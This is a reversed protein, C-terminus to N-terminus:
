RPQYTSLKPTSDHGLTRATTDGDGYEQIQGLIAPDYPSLPPCGGPLPCNPFPTLIMSGTTTGLNEELFNADITDLQRETWCIYEVSTSYPVEAANWFDVFAVAPPNQMGALVDLTLLTLRSGVDADGESGFKVARFDTNLKTGFATYDGGGFRLKGGAGLITGEAQVSQSAIANDAEVQRGSTIHYSGALYNYSIPRNRAGLSGVDFQGGAGYAYGVLYGQNCPPNLDEVDIVRTQHPTFTVTTDLAACFDNVHKVGPCVFNLHVNVNSEGNNVIRVQTATEGRIDFKPFVLFSGPVNEQGVQASASGALGSLAGVFTTCLAFYKIKRFNM